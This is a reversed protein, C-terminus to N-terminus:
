FKIILTDENKSYTEKVKDLVKIRFDIINHFHYKLLEIETSNDNLDKVEYEKLTKRLTDIENDIIKNRFVESDQIKVATEITTELIPSLTLFDKLFDLLALYQKYVEENNSPTSNHESMIHNAKEQLNNLGGKTINELKNM